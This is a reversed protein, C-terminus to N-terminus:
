DDRFCDSLLICRDCQVQWQCDGLFSSPLSHPLIPFERKVHPLVPTIGNARCNHAINEEIEQDDYDSTTIDLDFSKRLFIALAGTGSGNISLIVLMLLCIGFAVVQFNVHVSKCFSHELDVFKHYQISHFFHSLPPLIQDLEFGLFM